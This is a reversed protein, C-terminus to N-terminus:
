QNSNPTNNVGNQESGSEKNLNISPNQQTSNNDKNLNISQNQSYADPAQNHSNNQNYVSNQFNNCGNDPNYRDNPNQTYGSCNGNVNPNNYGNYGGCQNYTNSQNNNYGYNNGYQNDFGYGMGGTADFIQNVENQILAMSVIGLGFFGLLLYIVELSNDCQMNRMAKAKTVSKGAQYYWVLAYIGCTIISLFVVMGGSMSDQENALERLDNALMVMWALAFIGCTVISLIIYLALDRKKM